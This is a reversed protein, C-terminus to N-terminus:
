SDFFHILQIEKKNTISTLNIKKNWSILMEYYQEFQTLIHNNFEINITKALNKLLKM